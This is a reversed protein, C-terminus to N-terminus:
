KSKSLNEFWYLGSKGPAVIDLDGDKDMDIATMQLGTGATGKPFDRLALRKAPDAPANKAPEGVYIDRKKWGGDYNFAAIVPADVDGPEREHAYVRKGTIMEDKGDGDLDAWLLTHVSAISGDILEKKWEIKGDAGKTQKAWYLGKDHGMGWILDTLGDGDMDRALIQIGTAGLNWDPHWTWAQESPKAPAEFWGKPTLLDIRGDRNIDGSGV